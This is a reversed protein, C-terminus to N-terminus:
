QSLEIPLDSLEEEATSNLLGVAHASYRALEAAAEKCVEAASFAEDVASTM